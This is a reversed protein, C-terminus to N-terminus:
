ATASPEGQSWFAAVNGLPYTLLDPIAYVAIGDRESIQTRVNRLRSYVEFDEPSLVERYDIRGKAKGFKARGGEIWTVAVAWASRPGDSVLERDIAIVRHSSLFGNLEDQAERSGFVPIVFFHVRM